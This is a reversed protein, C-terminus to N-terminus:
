GPTSLATLIAFVEFAAYLSIGMLLLMVLMTGRAFVKEAGTRRADSTVAHMRAIVYLPILLGPVAILIPFLLRM